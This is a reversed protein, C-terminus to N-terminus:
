EVQREGAKPGKVGSGRGGLKSSRTGFQMARKVRGSARVLGVSEVAKRLLIKDGQGEGLRPDCKLHVPLSSLYSIFSLSLYPYRADRAHSSLMRDDRSLNRTPLRAIDMQTESILGQWGERQYAHRHRAYGGLQEDAGLGSIYVKAKVRYPESHNSGEKRVSGYGRSAFYLPLALSHDMETSSPYMLDLVNQRHARAEDYPVDIEVFRWERDPCVQKLEVLADRGSLRDPVDYTPAAPLAPSKGKGKDAGNSSLSSLKPAPSFAVNILDIPDEPPLCLHILYALFTCDIGGSFLVAVRSCGKEPNPINEVRRKVSEKLQEIFKPVEEKIKPNDLPLNDPPLATNIPAVKTWSGSSSSCSADQDPSLTHRHKLADSMDMTLFGQNQVVKIRRLDITGGEGGLLARMDVGHERALTSRSSSLIFHRTVSPNSDVAVEAPHILLSRRSLPDLQYHLIDNELDLYIFAFPGEVGSLVDEVREGKELREFIKRTDNEETGIDIGEFVQGNWGLVGRNGVLPQATLDGRLGLVTATLCIEVKSKTTSKTTTTTTVGNDDDDLTVTHKFTRQSDPGRQANTSRFSDLLALDADETSDSSSCDSVSPSSLSLSLPRITLTLGCM